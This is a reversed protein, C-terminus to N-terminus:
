TDYDALEEKLNRISTSVTKGFVKATKIEKIPKFGVTAAARQVDPNKEGMALYAKGYKNKLLYKEIELFLEYAASSPVDPRHLRCEYLCASGSEPKLLSNTIAGGSDTFSVWAYQAIHNDAYAVFCKHTQYFRKMIAKPPCKMAEALPQLDDISAIRIDYPNGTEDHYATGLEKEFLVVTNSCFIKQVTNKLKKKLFGALGYQRVTDGLNKFSDHTHGYSLFYRIKGLTNRKFLVIFRHRKLASRAKGKVYFAKFILRSIRNDKSFVVTNMNRSQDTWESKYPEYGIGFDCFKTNNLFCERISEKRLMRGPAYMSFLEDHASRLFLHRGQYFLGYQFAIVQNNLTLTRIVPRFALTKEHFLGSFFAQSRVNSFGSTDLKKKWRQNHLRYIEDINNPDMEKYVLTGIESLRKQERRFNKQMHSSFRTRYYTDFDMGSTRIYPAVTSTHLASVKKEALYKKFLPYNESCEPMGALNFVVNGNMGLLYDVLFEIAQERYARRLIFDMYISQPSGAFRVEKYFGKNDIILPCIGALLEGKKILIVHLEQHQKFAKWWHLVWDPDLFLNDSNNERLIERWEEVYESLEDSDTVTLLKLVIERKSRRFTMIFKKEICIPEPRLKMLAYLIISCNGAFLLSATIISSYAAGKLGALPILFANSAICALLAAGYLAPQIKLMRVAITGYNMLNGLYSFGAAFMLLILINQYAGYDATYFLILIQKGVAISVALGVLSMALIILASNLMLKIFGNRNGNAYFQALRPSTTQGLSNVMIDGVSVIYFISSYYGLSGVGLLGKIFYNPVNNTLSICLLVVGLPLCLRILEKIVNLNLSIKVRSFKKANPYDYLVMVLMWALALGAAGYVLNHTLLLLAGMGTVSLLSKLMLSLGLKDMREYKQFLGYFMDSFTEFGKAIGVAIIVAAAEPSGGFHVAIIVIIYLTILTTLFRLGLYNEFPYQDETDTAFVARLNFDAFMFAPTAIALALVFQGVMVSTGLKAILILLVGRSASYALKGAFNWFTNKGISKERDKPVALEEPCDDAKKM